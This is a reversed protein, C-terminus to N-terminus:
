EAPEKETEAQMLNEKLWRLYETYLYIQSNMDWAVGHDGPPFIKLDFEKGSDILARVFQFTNQPHVNDDMLSHVLLLKGELGGAHQVMSSEQYGERNDGYLGMYKETLICDYNLHDTIAATVIGARFVEPHKLLGTGASFGGFSHGMIGIRERDIWPKEALHLAAEAFDRTEWKGLQGHVVKEFGAGYGGNGRNNINAVVFGQQALYQTWGGSEFSNFVGQSGPGGYVSLLLPYTASPDFDMPRVLYGDIKQGDSATFTFLERGAYAYEELHATTRENGALRTVLKGNGSRLDTRSPTETDSYTDIFYAGSPSVDVRHNGPEGTIREKKRGNFRVTYLNRELPSVETSLYWLKEREPDIAKIGIVEFNGSTVQKLLEGGYSYHYIHSYGDRDSVWFFSDTERPFYLLHLEGAFFDFIDIWADSREELIVQKEGSKVDILYLKMHDQPRNMWVVALTHEGSTWYIRPMYGGMPDLNLWKKEGTEVDIVGLRERPPDDGVKPYPIEMYDPHQGEFDTLRYVPVEREDTQWFAIYRSDNSWEWAQVLGFEEENAWGFRGNYFKDAGDFTLQRHTQSALDFVFLDGEKGYGVKTGDPSVEATFADEVVPQMSQQDLSWLYYDANGSYRWIPRFRTQFLMHSNDATWEFSRYRFAEESEPFTLGESTFVKEESQSDPHYVWIEQAGAERKTFSFSEGGAMWRVGAPGGDGRLSSGAYLAEVLSSYQKKQAALSISLLILIVLSGIRKM